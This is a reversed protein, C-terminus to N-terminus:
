SEIDINAVEITPAVEVLPFEKQPQCPDFDDELKLNTRGGFAKNSVSQKFLDFYHPDIKKASSHSMINLSEGVPHIKQYARKTTLADFFDTIATIRAFKHIDKGKLGRPYGSGNYNEHHEHVIRRVVEFDVKPSDCQELMMEFGVGPHEKIKEFEEDTLKEPKNIITTPIKIKGLDHLLGGLGITALERHSSDPHIYKLFTINYFSVNVSHDYTYFDHFSLEEILGHIKSVNYNKTLEIMSEITEMCNQILENLAEAELTRKKKFMQDLYKIAFSKIANGKKEDNLSDMSVLANLYRGRQEESIYVQHYKTRIEQLEHSTLVSDKGVIKVFNNRTPHASSNIYLDYELRRDSPILQIDASFLGRKKGM